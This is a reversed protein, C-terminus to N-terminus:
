LEYVMGIGPGQSSKKLDEKDYTPFMSSTALGDKKLEWM